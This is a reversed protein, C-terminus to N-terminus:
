LGFPSTPQRQPTRPLDIHANVPFLASFMPQHGKLSGAVTWIRLTGLQLIHTLANPGEKGPTKPNHTKLKYRGQIRTLCEGFQENSTGSETTLRAVHVNTQQTSALPDHSKRHSALM